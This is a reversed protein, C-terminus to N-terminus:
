KSKTIPKTKESLEELKSQLDEKINDIQTQASNIATSAKTLTSKISTFENLKKTIEDILTNIASIDLLVSKKKDTQLELLLSTRALTYAVKLSIPDFTEKDLICISKNRPYVRFTEIAEKVDRLTEKASIVAVAYGANRNKKAGELEDLLNRLYMKEDKAEFVIKLTAGSTQDSNLILMIDGLKSNLLQGAENGTPLCTDGFISAIKEIEAFVQDQYAIGKQTGKEAEIKTAEKASDKAKIEKEIAILRDTLEKKFSNLPSEPNNPDLLKVVRSADTDFYDALIQKIKSVASTNNKEDFLDSLKGGEGLYREMVQPMIGIKPDFNENLKKQILEDTEKLKNQFEDKLYLFEKDLDGKFKQFEKEVYDVNGVTEIDKLAILGVRLAKLIVSERKDSEYISLLEIIEVDNITVTIQENM